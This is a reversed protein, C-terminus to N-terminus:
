ACANGDEFPNVGQNTLRRLAHPPSYLDLHVIGVLRHGPPYRRTETKILREPTRGSGPFLFLDADGLPVLRAVPFRAVGPLRYHGLELLPKQQRPPSNRHTRRRAPRSPDLQVIDGAARGLGCLRHPTFLSGKGQFTVLDRPDAVQSIWLPDLERGHYLGRRTAALIGRFGALPGAAGILLMARRTPPIDKMRIVAGMTGFPSFPFPILYPLTVAVGFRRAVFYHGLEHALLISLLSVTFVIGRGLKAMLGPGGEFGEWFMLYTILVSIVTAVALLAPILLKNKELKPARDIILLVHQGAAERLLLTRGRARFVPALADYVQDPDGLLHGRVRTAHGNMLGTTIDEIDFVGRLLTRIWSLEDEEPVIFRSLSM